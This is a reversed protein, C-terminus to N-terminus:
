NKSLIGTKDFEASWYEKSLEAYQDIIIKCKIIAVYISPYGYVM